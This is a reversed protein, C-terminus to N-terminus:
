DKSPIVSNKCIRECTKLKKDLYEGRNEKTEIKVKLGSIRDEGQEIRISHSEVTNKIQSLSSKM